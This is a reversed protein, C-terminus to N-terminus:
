MEGNDSEDKIKWGEKIIELYKLFRSTASFGLCNFVAGILAKLM